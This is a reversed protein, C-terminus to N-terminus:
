EEFMEKIYEKFYKLMFDEEPFFADIKKRNSLWGFFNICLQGFRMDPFYEQHLKKLEDYFSDLRKADRM